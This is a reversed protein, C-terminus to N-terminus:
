PEPVRIFASKSFLRRFGESAYLMRAPENREDVALAIHKERRGAIRQLGFRLLQRGLGRGRASRALGFYVLEISRSAPSPNLLLVGAAEGSLRLLSWLDPEFAPTAMHGALVDDTARLGHLEPCDLTEVYSADLVTVFDHRIADRYPELTVNKPWAIGPKYRGSPVPRSLYSLQALHTFQSARLAEDKDHDDQELLAQALRVGQKRTGDIARDFMANFRAAPCDRTPESLFCMATRGAGPVVLVAGIISGAEDEIAWLHDLSIQNAEAYDIFRNAAGIQPYGRTSMLRALAELRRAGTAHILGPEDDFARAIEPNASSVTM